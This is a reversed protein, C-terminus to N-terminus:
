PAQLFRASNDTERRSLIEIKPKAGLKRYVVTTLYAVSGAYSARVNIEFYLSYSQFIIKNPIGTVPASDNFESQTALAHDELRDGIDRLYPQRRDGLIDQAVTLGVGSTKNSRPITTLAYETATNMNLPFVGEQKVVGVHPSLKAMVEPTFGRVMRLESVDTLLGNAAAYPPRENSYGNTESLYGVEKDDADLWDGLNDALSIDIDLEELLYRFRKLEENHGKGDFQLLNNLNYFRHLDTIQIVVSGINDIELPLASQAWYEDFHDGSIDGVPKEADATADDRLALIALEEAALAYYYAQTRNVMGTTRKVDIMKGVTIKTAILAAIAFVMLVTVLAVGSQNSRKGFSRRAASRPHSQTKM